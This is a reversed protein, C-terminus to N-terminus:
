SPSSGGCKSISAFLAAVLAAEEPGDLKGDTAAKALLPGVKSNYESIFCGLLKVEDQLHAPLFIALSLLLPAAKEMAKNLTAVTEPKVPVTPMAM